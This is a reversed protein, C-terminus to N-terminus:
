SRGRRALTHQKESVRYEHIAGRVEALAENSALRQLAAEIQAIVGDLRAVERPGDVVMAVGFPGEVILASYRPQLRLSHIDAELETAQEKLIATYARLKDSSVRAADGSAPVLWEIELRILGHLDGRTYAATIDQIVRSKRDREGPDRELDPHLEKALRRYVAGLTDKRLQESHRAREEAARARKGHRPRQTAVDQDWRPLRYRRWGSIARVARLVLCRV